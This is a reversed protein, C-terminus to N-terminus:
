NQPERALGAIVPCGRDLRPQQRYGSDYRRGRGPPGSRGQISTVMLVGTSGVVVSAQRVSVSTFCCSSGSRRPQNAASGSRACRNVNSAASRWTSRDFFRMVSSTTAARRRSASSTPSSSRRSAMNPPSRILTVSSRETSCVASRLGAPVSSVTSPCSTSASTWATRSFIYAKASLTRDPSHFPTVPLRMSVTTLMPM